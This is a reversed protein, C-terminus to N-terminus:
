PEVLLQHALAEAQRRIDPVAIIEWFAARTPPGLAFLRGVSAEVANRLAFDEGVDLGLGCLDPRALGRDLLDRVLADKIHAYDTEPGSCNVVRDVLITQREEGGRRRFTVALRGDDQPVLQEIRGAEVAFRGADFLGDVRAAIAPALRHRHVDWWPQVHRTFRLREESPLNQWLRQTIPRLADIVSRWDYGHSAARRVERRVLRVLTAIRTPLNAPDLFLPYRRAQEHRRPLLGRRSLATIRGRHGAEDLLIAFDVMTLSAGIILVDDDARISAFGVPDWPNGIFCPDEALSDPLGRPLAPPFNGVCLVVKDVRTTSGDAMELSVGAPGPDLRVVEHPIATLSARGQAAAVADAFVDGIYAGYVGRSVFAHGSPPIASPDDMPHSPETAWLWRLFHSPDNDFASMNAVRVNLLHHPNQASYAVGRGVQGTREALVIEMEPQARRLLHVALMCGSFGGGIIGIRM